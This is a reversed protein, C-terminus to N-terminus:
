QEKPLGSDGEEIIEVKEPTQCRDLYVQLGIGRLAVRLAMATGWFGEWGHIVSMLPGTFEFTELSKGRKVADLFRKRYTEDEGPAIKFTWTGADNTGQWEVVGIEKGDSKLIPIYGKM